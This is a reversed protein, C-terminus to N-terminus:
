GFLALPRELCFTHWPLWSWTYQSSPARNVKIDCLGARSPWPAELSWGGQWCIAGGRGRSFNTKIIFPGYPKALPKLHGGGKGVYQM